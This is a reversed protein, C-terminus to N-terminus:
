KNTVLNPISSHLAEGDEVNKDTQCAVGRVCWPVHTAGFDNEKVLVRRLTSREHLDMVATM